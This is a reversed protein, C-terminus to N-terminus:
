TVEIGAEAYLRSVDDPLPVRAFKRVTSRGPNGWPTRGLVQGLPALALRVLQGFIEKADRQEAALSLMRAHVRLHPLLAPQSIIHARVLSIWAGEFDGAARRNSSLALASVIAQEMAPTLRM